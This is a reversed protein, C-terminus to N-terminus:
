LTEILKLKRYYEISGDLMKEVPAWDDTLLPRDKSYEVETLNNALDRRLSELEPKVSMKNFQPDKGGILMYSYILPPKYSTKYAKGFVHALTNTMSTVLLSDPSVSHVNMAVIGNENMRSSVLKWFEDTSFTWPIYMENLFVDVIILDYKKGPQELFNRGDAVIVNAKVQDLDFYERAIDVVKPDIEVADIQLKDGFFYNMQRPITAGALGIVLVKKPEKSDDALAYPLVNFYDYIGGTLVKNREYVSELSLGENFLLYRNGTKDEAVEIHHYESEGEYIIKRSGASAQPDPIVAVLGIAAAILIIQRFAKTTLGFLGILILIGALVYTTKATGLMPLLWFTPVFTGAISGFTSIAFILGTSRGIRNNRLNYAKVLIPSAMGLFVTPLGFLILASVFSSIFFTPNGPHTNYVVKNIGQILFPSVKPALLFILGAALSLHTLLGADPRKDAALGGLWYGASLSLLIVAIINSWVFISTGYFPALMRSSVIEMGVSCFGIALSAAILPTISRNKTEQPM